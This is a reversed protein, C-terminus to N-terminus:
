IEQLKRTTVSGLASLSINRVERFIFDQENTLRMAVEEDPDREETAVQTPNIIRNPIKTYGAHIGFTEDLQGEYNQQM